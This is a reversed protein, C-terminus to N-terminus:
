YDLQLLEKHFNDVIKKIKEADDTNLSDLNYNILDSNSILEQIYNHKTLELKNLKKLFYNNITKLILSTSSGFNVQHEILFDSLESINDDITSNIALNMIEERVRIQDQITEIPQSEEYSRFRSLADIKNLYDFFTSSLQEDTKEHIVSILLDRIYDNFNGYLIYNAEINLKDTIKALTKKSPISRGKEWENITSKGSVGILDAFDQMSLNNDKRIQTIRESIEKKNLTM